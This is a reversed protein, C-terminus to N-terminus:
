RCYVRENIINKYKKSFVAKVIVPAYGNDARKDSSLSLAKDNMYDLYLREFKNKVLNKHDRITCSFGTVFSNSPMKESLDVLQSEGSSLDVVKEYKRINDGNCSEKACVMVEYAADSFDDSIVSVNLNFIERVLTIRSAEVGSSFISVTIVVLSIWFSIPAHLILQKLTIKEPSSIIENIEMM